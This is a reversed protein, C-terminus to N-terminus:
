GLGSSTLWVIIQGPVVAKLKLRIVNARYFMWSFGKFNAMVCNDAKACGVKLVKLKIHLILGAKVYQKKDNFTQDTKASIITLLTVSVIM